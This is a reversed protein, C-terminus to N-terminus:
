VLTFVSIYFYDSCCLVILLMSENLVEDGSRQLEHNLTIYKVLRCFAAEMIPSTENLTTWLFEITASLYKKVLIIDLCTYSVPSGTIAYRNCFQAELDLSKLCLASVPDTKCDNYLLTIRPSCLCWHLM